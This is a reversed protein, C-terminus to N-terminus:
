GPSVVAIIIRTLTSRAQDADIGGTVAARALADAAGVIARLDALGIPEPGAFPALARRCKAIYAEDAERHLRDLTPSGTLAAVVDALERGEALVCGIYAGAVVRAVAGLEPETGELAADLTEHQRADFERYLESLVGARTGFHDYVLPKAVGARQALRGLTLGDTGEERILDRAVQLLQVHRDQKSLRSRPVAIPRDSM